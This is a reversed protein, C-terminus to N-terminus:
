GSFIFTIDGVSVKLLHYVTKRPALFRVMFQYNWLILVLSTKKRKPGVYHPISGAWPQHLSCLHRWTPKDTTTLLTQWSYYTPNTLQQWTSRILQQWTPYTLQKSATFTASTLRLTDVTSHRIHSIGVLTQHINSQLIPNPSTLQQCTPYMDVTESPNTLQRWTPYTLM